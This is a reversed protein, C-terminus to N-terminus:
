FYKWYRWTAPFFMFMLIVRIISINNQKEVGNEHANFIIEGQLTCSNSIKGFNSKINGSHRIFICDQSFNGRMIIQAAKPFKYRGSSKERGTNICSVHNRSTEAFQVHMYFSNCRNNMNAYHKIVNM